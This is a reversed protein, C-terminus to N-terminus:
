TIPILSIFSKCTHFIYACPLGNTSNQGEAVAWCNNADVCNIGNYYWSLTANNSAVVKWTNGGDTTKAIVGVYNTPPPAAKSVYGGRRHVKGFLAEHPIEVLKGDVLAYRQSVRRQVNGQAALFANASSSEPWMGGAIYGTTTNIFSGYRADTAQGWDKGLYSVGGNTSFMVGDGNLDTAVSWQGIKYYNTTSLAGCDQFAGFLNKTTAETWNKGDTTYASGEALSLGLGTSVGSTANGMATCFMFIADFGVNQAYWDVAANSTYMITNGSNGDGSIWCTNIDTCSVGMLITALRPNSISWSQASALGILMLGCVIVCLSKMTVFKIFYCFLTLLCLTEVFFIVALFRFIWRNKQGISNSSPNYFYPGNM